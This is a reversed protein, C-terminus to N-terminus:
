GERDRGQEQHAQSAEEQQGDTIRRGRVGGGRQWALVRAARWSRARLRALHRVADRAPHAAEGLAGPQTHRRQQPRAVRAAGTLHAADARHQRPAADAGRVEGRQVDFSVNEVAWFPQSRFLGKRRSYAVGVGELSLANAKSEAAILGDGNM